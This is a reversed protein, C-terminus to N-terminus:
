YSGYKPAGQITCCLHSNKETHFPLWPLYKPTHTNPIPTHLFIRSFTMTQCEQPSPSKTGPSLASTLFSSRPGPALSQSQATPTLTPSLSPELFSPTPHSHWTVTVDTM